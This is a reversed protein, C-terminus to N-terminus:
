SIKSNSTTNNKPPDQKLISALSNMIQGSVQNASKLQEVRKREM